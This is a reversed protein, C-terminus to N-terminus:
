ATTASEGLLESFYPSLLRNGPDFQRRLAVFKELRAGLAKVVQERTLFPTQNFLPSGGNRSCFENYAVLFDNWGEAATSVPDITIVTGDYTYSLLSNTDKGVRYGVDFVDNRYGTRKYYDRCFEVYARLIPGYKEEPFGWLSFTYKGLGGRHPYRILQDSAITNPSKVVNTLTWQQLRHSTDILFYRLKPSSIYHTCLYSFGPGFTKWVNNRLSWGWRTPARGSEEAFSTFEVTIRDLYPSMYFMMADGRQLLAPLSKEFDALSYTINQVILPRVPRVKLTVEYVIGLLGYSSRMAQMLEPDKEQSVEILEGAPTVLKMSTVYANVQGFQGPFSGDKTGCCAGSGLSLNGLEINVYFQLHQKDLEKAVDIYLAGGEATVTDPGIQLIRNLGTMDILTGGDAVTCRTVSHNSGVARVPSPYKEPNKLVAVIEEVKTPKVVVRPQSHIDGFWNRVKPGDLQENM